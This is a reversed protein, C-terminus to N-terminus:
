KPRVVVHYSGTAPYHVMLTSGTEATLAVGDKYWLYTPAYYDSTNTVWLEVSSGGCLVGNNDVDIEPLPIVRLNLRVTSDCGFPTIEKKTATTDETVVPFNFGYRNYAEGSVMEDSITYTIVPHVTLRM